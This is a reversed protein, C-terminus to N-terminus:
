SAGEELLFRELTVLFRNEGMRVLMIHKEVGHPGAIETYPLTTAAKASGPTQADFGGIVVALEGRELAGVLTAENGPHWSIDANLTGSFDEILAPETGTPVAQGAAGDPIEVWPPNETIGVRLVGDTVHDLTGHPDAPIQVACASLTMTLLAILTQVSRALEM